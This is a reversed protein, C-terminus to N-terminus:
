IQQELFAHIEQVRESIEPVLEEPALAIRPWAASVLIRDDFVMSPMQCAKVDCYIVLAANGGDVPVIQCSVEQAAADSVCVYTEGRLTTTDARALRDRHRRASADAEELPALSAMLRLATLDLAAVALDVEVSFVVPIPLARGDRSVEPVSRCASREEVLLRTGAADFARFIVGGRRIIGDPGESGFDVFRYSPPCIEARVPVALGILFFM